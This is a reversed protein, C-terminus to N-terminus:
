LNEASIANARVCGNLNFHISPSLIYIKRMANQWLREHGSEPITELWVQDSAGRAHFTAITYSKRVVMTSLIYPSANRM